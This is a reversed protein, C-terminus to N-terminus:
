TKIREKIEYLTKQAQIPTMQDLNLDKVENLIKENEPDSGFLQLQREQTKKKPTKRNENELQYLMQEAKKILAAPLGALKAVHIGYSKDTGGRIIKRLFVIGGETEKVAVQYNIAGPIKGEMKTLEWYHTAFLTKARKKESTLLFEAVAWAISIGDYTSTGRGIEDLIVLSRDTANNLINATETMEVMFTSQGRSLDDSAGVRSFVKDVIGIKASQVPIFSGIQAMITLLAVQRIYTSKGAMNPGTILYLREKQNLFTDNPIFDSFGLAKEIIPHRGQEIHTSDSDSIEPKKYDFRIAVKALSHLADIHSVAKAIEKVLNQHLSVKSRLEEFLKAELAKMREESTLIKHEFEKLEESLFRESNVLTQKRHFNPPVKSSQAKSVDIYYGFVKTFGVKLTKIGLQDRLHQQYKIIWDKSHNRITKLEDLEKSYGTKFIDGDHLRLPPNEVLANRILNVIPSTEKLHFVNDQILTSTFPTLTQKIEPIKELSTALSTFDRPNAYGSSIRMILRELDRVQDLLNSIQMLSSTQNMYEEIANQRNAIIKQSLLPRKIWSALLRAGMPTKTEDLLKLLTPSKKSTSDLIELNQMSQRDIAMFGKLQESSLNQVHSLDISLENKLYNLLAGASSIAAPMERLGFSDLTNISFHYLLADLTSKYDFLINEKINLVFPHEHSLQELLKENHKKFKESILLETPKLKYIENLLENQDELELASFESTTLDIISLGYSQGIQSLSIFFNNTKDSLLDSHILTGPSVFRVVERKVIGKTNRPDEMQEAIAIKFGKAVLKDLYAELTHVPVGCMPINQRQTLTLDIEKSMIKADEYFAEYFDGLRFLLLADKAQHKCLHWQQMMPTTDTPINM